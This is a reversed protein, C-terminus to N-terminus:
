RHLYRYSQPSLVNLALARYAFASITVCVVIFVSWM